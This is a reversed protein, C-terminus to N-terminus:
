RELTRRRDLAVGSERRRAGVGRSPRGALAAAVSGGGLRDPAASQLPFGGTDVSMLFRYWPTVADDSEGPALASLRGAVGLKLANADVVTVRIGERIFTALLEGLGPMMFFLRGGDPVEIADVGASKRRRQRRRGRDVAACGRLELTHASRPSLGRGDAALVGPHAAREGRSGPRRRRERHEPGRDLRPTPVSSTYFQRTGDPRQLTLGIRDFRDREPHANGPEADFRSDDVEIYLYLYRDTSGALARAAYGTKTPLAEPDAAVGWDDRYGDLLPQNRLPHVYLDGRDAAFPETDDPDRFVRQPQASLANAITGASALLSKEQSDRLATELERAYQCGAWPLVLTTLAVILLQLRISV